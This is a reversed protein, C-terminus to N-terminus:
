FIFIFFSNVKTMREFKKNEGFSERCTTFNSSISILDILVFEIKSDTGNDMVLIFIGRSQDLCCNDSWSYIFEIGPIILKLALLKAWSKLIDTLPKPALDAKPILPILIITSPIGSVVGGM